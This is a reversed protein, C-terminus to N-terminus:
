KFMARIHGVTVKHDGVGFLVHSDPTSTNLSDYVGKFVRMVEEREERLAKMEASFMDDMRGVTETDISKILGEIGDTNIAPVPPRYGPEDKAPSHMELVDTDPAKVPPPVPPTNETGKNANKEAAAKNKLQEIIEEKNRPGSM